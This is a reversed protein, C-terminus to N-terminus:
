DTSQHVLHGNAYIPRPQGPIYRATNEAAVEVPNGLQDELYKALDDPTNYDVGGYVLGKGAIALFFEGGLGRSIAVRTLDKLVVEDTVRLKQVELKGM